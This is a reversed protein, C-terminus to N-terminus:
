NASPEMLWFRNGFPDRLAAMRGFQTEFDRQDIHAGTSEAFELAAVISRVQFYVLWYPASELDGMMPGMGGLPWSQDPFSYTQYDDGGGMEAPLPANAFGFVQSYFERAVSPNPTRLDDWVFSGPARTHEGGVADGAQWLGFPAGTPDCAVARRGRTGAAQPPLLVQGDHAVVSDATAQLNDTAFHVLWGTPTDEHVETIGAAEAGEVTAVVLRHESVSREFSWGLLPGYFAKAVEVDDAALEAWCPTGARWKETRVAM